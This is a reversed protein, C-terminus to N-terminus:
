ANINSGTELSSIGHGPFIDLSASMAELKSYWTKALEKNSKPFSAVVKIGPIFSDGTFLSNDLRYSLCSWDHGPTSIVSLNLNESFKVKDGDSLVNILDSDITIPDNHYRSFNWASNNFAAKGNASTYVPVYPFHKMFGEVGYIHDYHTHTILLAKVPLSHEAIYNCVPELDGMDIVIANMGDDVVYTNSGFISNGFRKINM